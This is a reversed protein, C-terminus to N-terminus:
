QNSNDIGNFYGMGHEQIWKNRFSYANNTVWMIVIDNLSFEELPDKHMQIGMCWKYVYIEELQANLYLQLKQQANEQNM